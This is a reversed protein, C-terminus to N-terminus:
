LAPAELSGVWADVAVEVEDIRDTFFHDAEPIVVLEYGRPLDLVLSLSRIVVFCFMSFVLKPWREM